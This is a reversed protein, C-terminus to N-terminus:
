LKLGDKHLIRAQLCIDWEEISVYVSSSWLPSNLPTEMTETSNEKQAGINIDINSVSLFTFLSFLINSSLQFVLHVNIRVTDLEVTSALLQLM